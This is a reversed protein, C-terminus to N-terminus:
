APVGIVVADISYASGKVAIRSGAPVTVATVLSVTPNSFMTENSVTTYPKRAVEVESGSAGVGVIVNNDSYSVFSTFSRSEVIALAKYEQSTSAIVQTYSTTAETGTSAATVAGLVDVSSPVLSTDGIAFTSISVTATDSGILAQSRVAIRNSAAVAVPVVFTIGDASAGGVAINSAIASESGSAGVGIDILTATDTGAVGISSATVLLASTNAANSAIIETWAGKVHSTADATVTASGSSTPITVDGTYWPEAAAAGGGKVFGLGIGVM